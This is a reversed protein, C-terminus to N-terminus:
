WLGPVHLGAVPQEKAGAGFPIAVGNREALKIFKEMRALNAGYREMIEAPARARLEDVQSQGKEWIRTKVNGPEILQEAAAWAQSLLM